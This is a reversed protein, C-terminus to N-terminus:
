GAVTRQDETVPMYPFISVVIFMFIKGKGMPPSICFASKNDTAAIPSASGATPVFFVSCGTFASTTECASSRLNWCHSVAFAWMRVSDSSSYTM